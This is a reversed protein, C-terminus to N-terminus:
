SRVESSSVLEATKNIYYNADDCECKCNLDRVIGSIDEFGNKVWFDFMDNFQKFRDKEPRALAARYYVHMESLHAAMESLNDKHDEFKCATPGPAAIPASDGFRAHETEHILTGLASTLWEQRSSAGITQSGSRYQKAQAELVDPVFTCTTGARPRRSIPVAM